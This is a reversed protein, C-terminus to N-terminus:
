LKVHPHFIHVLEELGMVLAPSPENVYSPNPLEYVHGTKVATIADFGAQHEEQAVTEGAGSDILIISPNAKVVQEATVQPWEQTSLAAGVNKAGALQILSNVFTGPGATYLQGLDYFVTPRTKTKAVQAEIQAMQHQMQHVVAEAQSEHGTAQGVLLMDHYVGNINTPNLTLVPIHFQSLSSLGHIGTTALVLDPRAAVIQETSIGPYSAGISKLGSLEHNWPSPTYQFSEQDIGVLDRKLGLELAIVTNSPELAVIRTAPHTLTITHGIDDTLHLPAPPAAAASSSTGGCGTLALLGATVTVIVSLSKKWLFM